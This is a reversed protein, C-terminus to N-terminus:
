VPWTAGARRSISKTGIVRQNWLVCIFAIILIFVVSRAKLALTAAYVAVLTLPLFSFLFEFSNFPM